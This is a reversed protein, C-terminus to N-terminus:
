NKPKDEEKVYIRVHDLALSLSPSYMEVFELMGQSFKNPESHTLTLVGLLLRGRIFPIALASGVTYPQDPLNIWRNDTATDKIVATQRYRAVWGALGKDLVQGILKEKDEQITPGRALISDTIMGDPSLIFLSAGEAHFLKVNFSIIELLISRLMLRGSAVNHMTLISNFLKGQEQLAQKYKSLVAVQRRLSKVESNLDSMSEKNENTNM